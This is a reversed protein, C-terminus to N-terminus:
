RVSYSTLVLHTNLRFLWSKQSRGLNKFDLMPDYTDAAMVSIYRTASLGLYYLERSLSWLKCKLTRTFGETNKLCFNRSCNRTGTQLTGRCNVLSLAASIKIIFLSYKIFALKLWKGKINSVDVSISGTRKTLIPRGKQCIGSKRYTSDAILYTEFKM